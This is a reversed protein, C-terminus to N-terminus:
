PIEGLKDHTFALNHLSVKENLCDSKDAKTMGWRSSSMAKKTARIWM